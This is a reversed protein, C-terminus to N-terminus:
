VGPEASRFVGISNVTSLLLRGAADIALANVSVGRYGDHIPVFTSGGDDSRIPGLSTGAYIVVPDEASRPGVGVATVGLGRLQDTELADIRKFTRAGDISRFLGTPGGPAYVVTPDVRDFALQQFAPPLGEGVQSFSAGHNVSLFLGSDTFVLLSGDETPH